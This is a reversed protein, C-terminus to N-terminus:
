HAHVVDRAARIVSSASSCNHRRLPYATVGHHHSHGQDNRFHRMEGDAAVIGEEAEARGRCRGRSLEFPHRCPIRGRISDTRADPAGGERRRRRAMRNMCRHCYAVVHRIRLSSASPAMCTSGPSVAVAGEIEIISSSSPKFTGLNIHGFVGLSGTERARLCYRPFLKTWTLLFALAAM